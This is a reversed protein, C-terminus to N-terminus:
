HFLEGFLWLVDPFLGHLYDLARECSEEQTREYVKEKDMIEVLAPNIGWAGTYYYPIAQVEGPVTM